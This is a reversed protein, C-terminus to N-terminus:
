KFDEATLGINVEIKKVTADMAVGNGSQKLTHAFKIGGVEKYNSMEEVQSVPGQPTDTTTVSKVKLGTATDYYNVMVTTEGKVIELVYADSGNVKEIGKVTMKYGNQAYYMDPCLDSQAKIAEFEDGETFEANVDGMGSMKVTTGDFTIKQVVMGSMSIATLTHRPEKKYATVMELKQGMMSVEMTMKYDEVKEIAAVGGLAEVYNNIIQEASIEVGYNLQAQSVISYAFLATLFIIKKM